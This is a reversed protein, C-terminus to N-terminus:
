AQAPAKLILDPFMLAVLDDVTEIYDFTLGEIYIPKIEEIDKKNERPLVIHMLHARKAALIKEKIGGVPLVKGRLTVEGTMAIGPTPAQHTLCSLISTIMTVGASPGDKPIAGEPVHVHVNKEALEQVDIGFQEGHAKIYEFAITASEKMVNGLNGTMSLTGKGPAMSSEIYLIDGGVSTWAMGIAVGVDAHGEYTEPLFTPSGLRERVDEATLEVNYAEGMAIRKAQQRVLKAVVQDLRRVGSERTYDNIVQSVLEDSMAFQGRKVGHAELQKPILHQQAIAIKEEIIYGTIEVMEMRDRLPPAITSIDNATTIFLVNSLDFETELYNDYFSNRQDPDLVELLASAPDGMMNSTVKDIEDLVFVPNATKAKRLSQLIRGPMAGVYTRRHGRIEAEDHLGGLSIRAYQRGLSKAISKGLSTKGVGPPGYLCIIPSKLDNKLKLVALFELIREKVKELGYHDADLCQQAYKLDYNDKSFKAWPLDTFFQLYSLQISYDPSMNNMQRLRDLERTFVERADKSLKLRRAKKELKDADGTGPTNGLEEQIVGLQQQLIFDRQQKDLKHQTREQIEKQLNLAQIERSILEQLLQIREVYDSVELLKQKEELPISLRHSLVNVYSEPKNRFFPFALVNRMRDGTLESLEADLHRLVDLQMELPKSKFDVEQEPYAKAQVVFYPREKLFKVIKIRQIGLAMIAMQGNQGELVRQIRAMTGVRYMGSPKPNEELANRQTVIAILGNSPGYEEIIQRSRRRGITIPLLTYPFSVNNRLEILPLGEPLAVEDYDWNFNLGDADHLVVLGESNNDQLGSNYDSDM